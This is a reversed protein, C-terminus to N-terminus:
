KRDALLCTHHELCADPCCKENRRCQGDHSCVQPTIPIFTQARVPPCVPRHPCKGDHEAYKGVGTGPDCCYIARDPVGEVKPKRCYSRCGPNAEVVMVFVMVAVIVTRLM